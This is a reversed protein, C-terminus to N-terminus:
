TLVKPLFHEKFILTKPEIALPKKYWKPIYKNPTGDVKYGQYTYPPVKHYICQHRFVKAKYTHTRHWTKSFM